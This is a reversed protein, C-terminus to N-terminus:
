SADGGGPRVRFVYLGRHSASLLVERVGDGDVDVPFVDVKISAPADFPPTKLAWDSTHIEVRAEERLRSDLVVLDSRPPMLTERNHARWRVHAWSVALGITEIDGDGDLDFAALPIVRQFLQEPEIARIDPVVQAKSVWNPISAFDVTDRYGAVVELDGDLMVVAGDPGGAVIEDAGDGDFDAVAMGYLGGLDSREVLTRGDPSLVSASGMDMHQGSSWVTVVEPSGDGTVDAAAAFAGLHVGVSRKKWLINGSQDLCLVYCTGADTTGGGSVGNEPCYCQVLLEDVGDGDLDAAHTRVPSPGTRDTWLTRGDELDVCFVGRYGGEIDDIGVLPYESGPTLAHQALLMYFRDVNHYGGDTMMVAFRRDGDAFAIGDEASFLPDVPIRLREEQGPVAALLRTYVSLSEGRKAYRLARELANARLLKFDHSYNWRFRDILHSELRSENVETYWSEPWWILLEPEPLMAGTPCAGWKGDLTAVTEGDASFLWTSIEREPLTGTVDSVSFVPLEEEDYGAIFYPSNRGPIIYDLELEYDGAPPNPEAYYCTGDTTWGGVKELGRGQRVGAGAIAVAVGLGLLFALGRLPGLRHM